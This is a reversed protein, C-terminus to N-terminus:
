RTSRRRALLAAAGIAALCAAFPEPIVTTALSGIVVGTDGDLGGTFAVLELTDGSRGLSPIATAGLAQSNGPVQNFLLDFFEVSDFSGTLAAVLDAETYGPFLDPVTLGDALGGQLAIVFSVDALDDNGDYTEVIGFYAFSEFADLSPPPFVEFYSIQSSGPGTLGDLQGGTTLSDSRYHAYASQGALRYYGAPDETEVLMVDIFLEQAPALSVLGALATGLLLNRLSM